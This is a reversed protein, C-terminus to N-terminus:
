LWLLNIFSFNVFNPWVEIGFAKFGTRTASLPLVQASQVSPPEFHTSSSVNSPGADPYTRSSGDICEFTLNSTKSEQKYPDPFNSRLDPFRALKKWPNWCSRSLNWLTPHYFKSQMSRRRKLRRLLFGLNVHTQLLLFRHSLWLQIRLPHRRRIDIGTFREEKQERIKGMTSTHQLVVQRPQTRAMMWSIRPSTINRPSTVNRQMTLILQYQLPHKALCRLQLSRVHRLSTWSSIM